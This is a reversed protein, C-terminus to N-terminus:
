NGQPASLRREQEEIAKLAPSDPETKLYYERSEAFAKRATGRYGLQALAVGLDFLDSRLAMRRDATEPPPMARVSDVALALNEAAAGPRGRDRYYLGLTRLCREKLMAEQPGLAAVIANQSLLKAVAVAQQLWDETQVPASPQM